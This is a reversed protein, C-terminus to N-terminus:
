KAIAKVLDAAADRDIALGEALDFLLERESTRVIGDAAVVQVALSFATKRQGLEPLREKVKALRADRGEELDKTMRALLAELGAGSVRRDTLSEVSAVFHKREEDGFDGDAYAALFMVEVLAELKPDDLDRVSPPTIASM